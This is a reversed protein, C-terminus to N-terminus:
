GPSYRGYVKYRDGRAKTWENVEGPNPSKLNYDRDVLSLYDVTESCYDFWPLQVLRPLGILQGIVGPIDYLTKYWPKNLDRVIYKIIKDKEEITWSPNHVLKLNCFDYHRLTFCKFYFWQSALENPGILWMTHGWASKTRNKVIMSFLGRVNDAFVLLPYDKCPIAMMDHITMYHEDSM